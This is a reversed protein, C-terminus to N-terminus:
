HGSVGALETRYGFFSKTQGFQGRDHGNASYKRGKGNGHNVRAHGVYLLGLTNLAQMIKMQPDDAIATIVISGKRMVSQILDRIILPPVAADNGVHKGLGPSRNGCRRWDVTCKGPPCDRVLSHDTVAHVCAQGLLTELGKGSPAEQQGIRFVEHVIAASVFTLVKRFSWWPSPLTMM